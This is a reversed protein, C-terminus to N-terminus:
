APVEDDTGSTACDPCPGPLAYLHRRECIKMGVIRVLVANERGPDNQLQAVYGVRGLGQLMSATLDPANSHTLGTKGSTSPKAPTAGQATTDAQAHSGTRTKARKAKSGTSGAGNATTSSPLTLSDTTM